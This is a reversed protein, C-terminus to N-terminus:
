SPGSPSSRFIPQGARILDVFQQTSFGYGNKAPEPVVIRATEEEGHLPNIAEAVADDFSMLRSMVERFGPSAACDALARRFEDGSASRFDSGRM